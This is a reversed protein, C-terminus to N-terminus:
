PGKAKMIAVYASGFIATLGAIWKAFIIAGKAANFVKLLEKVDKNTQKAIDANEQVKNSLNQCELELSQIREDTKSM